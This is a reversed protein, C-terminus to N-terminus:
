WACMMCYIGDYQRTKKTGCECYDNPDFCGCVSGMTQHEHCVFDQPHRETIEEKEEM